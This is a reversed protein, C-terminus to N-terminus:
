RTLGFVTRELTEVYSESEPTLGHLLPRATVTVKSNRLQSGNIVGIIRQRLVGVVNKATQEEDKNEWYVVVKMDAM